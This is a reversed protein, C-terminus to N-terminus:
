SIRSVDPSLFRCQSRGRSGKGRGVGRSTRRGPFHRMQEGGDDGGKSVGRSRSRVDRGRVISKSRTESIGKESKGDCGGLVGQIRDKLEGFHDTISVTVDEIVEM